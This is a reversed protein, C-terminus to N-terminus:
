SRKNNFFFSKILLYFSFIFSICLVGYLLVYIALFLDQVNAGLIQNLGIMGLASTIGSFFMYLLINRRSNPTPVHEADQETPAKTQIRKFPLLILALISLVVIANVFVNDWSILPFIKSFFSILISLPYAALVLTLGYLQAMKGHLSLFPALHIKKFILAFLGVLIIFIM